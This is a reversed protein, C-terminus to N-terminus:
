RHHRSATVPGGERKNQWHTEGLHENIVFILVSLTQRERERKQKVNKEAGTKEGKYECKM